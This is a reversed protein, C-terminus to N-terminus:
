GIENVETAATEPLLGWGGEKKARRPNANMTAIAINM